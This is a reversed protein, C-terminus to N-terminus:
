RNFSYLSGIGMLGIRLSNIAGNHYNINYYDRGTYAGLFLGMQRAQSPKFFINAYADLHRLGSRHIGDPWYWVGGQLQVERGKGATPRSTLTGELGVKATGYAARNLSDPLPFAEMRVKWNTYYGSVTDSNYQTSSYGIGVVVQQGFSGARTNVAGNVVAPGDQGNSYHYVELSLLEGWSRKPLSLFATVGPMYSPTWVPKSDTTRMRIDSRMSGVLGRFYGPKRHERLSDESMFIPFHAALNAEFVLPPLNSLGRAATIVSRPLQVGILDSSTISRASPMEKGLAAGTQAYGISHVNVFLICLMTGTSRLTNIM